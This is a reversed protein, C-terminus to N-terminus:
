RPRDLDLPAALDVADLLEGAIEVQEVPVRQEGRHLAHEGRLLDLRLGPHQGLVPADAAEDEVVLGHAAGVVARQPQESGRGGREPAPRGSAAARRVGLAAASSATRRETFDELSTGKPEPLM